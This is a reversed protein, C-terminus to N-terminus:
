VTPGDDATRAVIRNELTVPHLQVGYSDSIEVVPNGSGGDAIWPGANNYTIRAGDIDANLDVATWGGFSRGNDTSAAVCWGTFPGLFGQQYPRSTYLQGTAPRYIMFQDGIVVTCGFPTSSEQATPWPNPAHAVWADWDLWRIRWDNGSIVVQSGPLGVIELDSPDETTPPALQCGAAALLLCCVIARM